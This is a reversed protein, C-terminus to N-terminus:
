SKSKKAGSRNTSGSKKKSSFLKKIEEPSLEETDSQESEISVGEDNEVDGTSKRKRSTPAGQEEILAQSKHAGKNYERTFAAKIKSDLDALKKINKDLVFEDMNEFVDDRDLGYEDMFVIADNVKPGDESTEMLLRAIRERLIPLYVLRLETKDASIKYNIHHSLEQLIRDMKGRSSNKGLWSSFEPYGSLFGGREGGLHYGSKVVLTSCFPLLSWNQDGSRVGHEAIAFDSMAETGHYMDVLFEYEAHAGGKTKTLAFHHLGVKLYNQHVLLGMLAYDTFFADTRKFLSDVQTREDADAIGKRGECIMKAADFLSVRLMEDKNIMGDREKFEKYTMESKNGSSSHKKNSWMQLCNLVQRIDNGCSEAIAEAANYEIAMGEAKAIEIARRAIVSKIPRRYKLDLCYSALSRIKQSQRDNCICIIPVKTSKIMHILESMGSHDGAGMGDVEDMIICRKKVKGKKNPIDFSLVQSGTVDGLSTQLTKKSRADSANMELVQRGAEKAVLQATTTKGIGPPGSLLAAKFSGSKASNRGNKGNSPRNFTTEWRDLWDALKKVVEKNGLIMHTNSPAYKDAWLANPDNVHARGGGRVQVEEKKRASSTAYPNIPTGSSKKEYPNSIVSSNKAYPNAIAKSSPSSSPPNSLHSNTKKAYPNSIPVSVSADNSEASVIDKENMSSRAEDNASQKDMKHKEDLLKALGYLEEQGKLIVIKEEGLEKAKKYKSGEEVNRGDELIDGVVLYNTKGSVGTTVRGGYCKVYDSAEDRPFDQMNGTFVFTYGDFTGPSPNPDSAVGMLPKPPREKGQKAKGKSVGGVAQQKAASRPRPSKRTAPSKSPASASPEAEIKNQRGTKRKLASPSLQFDDDSDEEGSDSSHIIRRKKLPTGEELEKKNRKTKDSKSASNTAKAAKTKQHSVSKKSTQSKEIAVKHNRKSEETPSSNLSSLDKVSNSSAHSSSHNRGQSSRSVQKENDDKVDNKSENKKVRQGKQSTNAQSGAAAAKANGGTAGGGGVGKKGFFNRIDM